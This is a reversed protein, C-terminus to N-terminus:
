ADGESSAGALEKDYAVTLEDHLDMYNAFAENETWPTLLKWEFRVSSKPVDAYMWRADPPVLTQVENWLVIKDAQHVQGAEVDVLYRMNIAANLRSELQRLGGGFHAIAQKVPSSIDNTVTEADDHHLGALCVSVPQKASILTMAVLVVHQAVSYDGYNSTFRRINALTRGTEEPQFV